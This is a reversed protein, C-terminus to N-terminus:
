KPNLELSLSHGTRNTLATLAQSIQVTKEKDFIWGQNQLIDIPNGALLQLFADNAYLVGAQFGGHNQPVFYMNQNDIQVLCRIDKPFFVTAGETPHLGYKGTMSFHPIFEIESNGARISNILLTAWQEDGQEIVTRTYEIFTISSGHENMFQSRSTIKVREEDSLHECAPSKLPRIIHIFNQLDEDNPSVTEDFTFIRDNLLQFMSILSAYRIAPIEISEPSSTTTFLRALSTTAMQLLSTM